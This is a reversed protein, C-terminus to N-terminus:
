SWYPAQSFLLPAPPPVLPLATTCYHDYYYSSPRESCAASSGAGLWDTRPLCLSWLSDLPPHHDPSCAGPAVGGGRAAQTRLPPSPPPGPSWSGLPDSGAPHSRGVPNCTCQKTLPARVPPSPPKAHQATLNPWVGSESINEWTQEFSKYWIICFWMLQMQQNKEVTHDFLPLRQTFPNQM